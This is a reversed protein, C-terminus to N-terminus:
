KRRGKKEIEIFGRRLLEQRTNNITRPDSPSSSSFFFEGIPSVWKYHGGHTLAVIWGQKEAKKRLQQIEKRSSM